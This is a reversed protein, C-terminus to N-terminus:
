WVNITGVGLVILGIMEDSIYSPIKHTRLGNCMQQKDLFIVSHIFHCPGLDLDLVWLIIKIIASSSPVDNTALIAELLPLYQSLLARQHNFGQDCCHWSCECLYVAIKARLMASNRYLSIHHVNCMGCRVIVYMSHVNYMCYIRSCLM